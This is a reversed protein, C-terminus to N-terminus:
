LFIYAHITKRENIYKLGEIESTNIDAKLHILKEDFLFDLEDFTIVLVNM